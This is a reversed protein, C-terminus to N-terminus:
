LSSLLLSDFPGFSGYSLGSSRIVSPVNLFSNSMESQLPVIATFVHVTIIILYYVWLFCLELPDEWRVHPIDVLQSRNFADFEIIFISMYMGKHLHM